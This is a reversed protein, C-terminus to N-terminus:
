VKNYQLRLTDHQQSAGLLANNQRQNQKKLSKVTEELKSNSQSLQSLQTAMM